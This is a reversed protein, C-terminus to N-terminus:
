KATIIHFGRRNRQWCAEDEETCVPQEKGKSITTVRDAGVGLSVLYDKVASARRGGLALNYEAHLRDSFLGRHAISADLALEDSRTMRGGGGDPEDCDLVAGATHVYGPIVAWGVPAQNMGAPM